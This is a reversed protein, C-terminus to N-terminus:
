SPVHAALMAFTLMSTLMMGTGGGQALGTMASFGKERVVTPAPWRRCDIIENRGADRPVEAV